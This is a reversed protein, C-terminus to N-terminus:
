IKVMTASQIIQSNRLICVQYWGTPLLPYISFSSTCYSFCSSTLVPQGSPLSYIIVSICDNSFCPTVMITRTFTLYSNFPNPTITYYTGILPIYPVVYLAQQLKEIFGCEDEISVKLTYSGGGDLEFHIPDGQTNGGYFVPPNPQMEEPIIEWQYISSCPLIREDVKFYYPMMMELVYTDIVGDNVYMAKNNNIKDFIGIMDPTVGFTIDKFFSYTGSNWEFTYRLETEGSPHVLAPPIAGDPFADREIRYHDGYTYTSLHTNNSLTWTGAVGAPFNELYYDGDCGCLHTPGSITPRCASIAKNVTIGHVTATLTGSQGSFQLPIVTVSATGSATISFAGMPTVEWSDASVDNLTYSTAGCVTSSGTIAVDCAQIAKKVAIGNVWATLTGSQGNLVQTTVTASTTNTASISFSSGPSVTWSDASANNLFYSEIRCLTSSGSIGCAQIVKTGTAGSAVTATITGSQGNMLATVTASAGNQATVSFAGLPAVTWTAPVNSILRYTDIACITSPGSIATTNVYYQLRRTGYPSDNRQHKMLPFENWKSIFVGQEDTTVASHDGTPRGWFVKGPYTERLVGTYSDDEMYIDPYGVEDFNLGIWRDPGGEARLWAYGHCNFRRTSSLNDYTVIKQAAPYATTYHDDFGQRTQLSSECTIWTVVLSGNPTFIDYMQIDVCQGRLLCSFVISTLFLVILKKM